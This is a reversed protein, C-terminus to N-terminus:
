VLLSVLLCLLVARIERQNDVRVTFKPSKGDLDISQSNMPNGYEDLTPDLNLLSPGVM